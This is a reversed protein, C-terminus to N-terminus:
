LLPLNQRYFLKLLNLLLELHGLTKACAGFQFNFSLQGVSILGCGSLKSIQRKQHQGGFVYMEGEWSISCSQVVETDDAWNFRFGKHERGSADTVVPLNDQSELLTIMVRNHLM